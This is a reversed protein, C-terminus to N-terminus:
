NWPMPRCGASLVLRAWLGSVKIEEGFNSYATKFLRLSKSIVKPLKIHNELLSNCQIDFISRRIVFHFFPVLLCAPSPLISHHPLSYRIEFSFFRFDRIVFRSDRLPFSRGRSIKTLFCPPPKTRFDRYAIGTSGCDSLIGM